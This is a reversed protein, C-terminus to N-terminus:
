KKSSKKGAAEKIAAATDPDVIAFIEDIADKAGRGLKEFDDVSMVPDILAMSVKTIQSINAKEYDIIPNGEGDVGKIMDNALEKTEKLTLERLTVEAGDLAKIKHKSESVTYKDFANAM